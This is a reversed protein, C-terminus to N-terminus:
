GQLHLCYTEGFRQYRGVLRCPALVWFLLIIREATFVDFRMVITYKNNMKRIHEEYISRPVFTRVLHESSHVIVFSGLVCSQKRCGTLLFLPSYNYIIIGSSKLFTTTDTLNHTGALFITSVRANYSQAVRTTSHVNTRFSNQLADRDVQKHNHATLCPLSVNKHLVCLGDRVFFTTQEVSFYLFRFSLFNLPSYLLRGVYVHDLSSSNTTHM